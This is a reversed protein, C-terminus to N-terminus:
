RLLGRPYRLGHPAACRARGVCLGPESSTESRPRRRARPSAPSRSAHKRASSTPAAVAVSSSKIARNAWLSHM